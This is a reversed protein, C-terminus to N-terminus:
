LQLFVASISLILFAQCGTNSFQQTNSVINLCSGIIFTGYDILYILRISSESVVYNISNHSFQTNLNSCLKLM